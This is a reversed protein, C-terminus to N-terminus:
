SGGMTGGAGGPCPPATRDLEQIICLLDHSSSVPTLDIGNVETLSGANRGGALLAAGARGAADAITRLEDRLGAPSGHTSSICVCDPKWQDVAAGVAVAPIRSGLYHSEWGESEFLYAACRLGIEHLDDGLTACVVSRGSRPKIRIQLQLKALAELTEYSARHEDSIGIEGRSWREGIQDMAPRIVRDHMEWLQVCHQYLYSFFPLLGNGDPALVRDVCAAVLVPYDRGLVATQIRCGPDGDGSIELSGAPEFHNQEAFDVVNRIEFKRHGGPTKQCRLTGEDAWRKVTTETVKFLRAVDSTSLITKQVSSPM